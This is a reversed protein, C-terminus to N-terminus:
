GLHFAPWEFHVSSHRLNYGIWQFPSDLTWHPGLSPTFPSSQPVLLVGWPSDEALAFENVASASTSALVIGISDGEPVSKHFTDQIIVAGNSVRWFTTEETSNSSVSSKVYMGKVCSNWIKKQDEQSTVKIANIGKIVSGIGGPSQKSRQYSFFFGSLLPPISLQVGELLFFHPPIPAPTTNHLLCLLYRGLGKKRYAPHVCFYDIIGAKEWYAPGVQVGKIWRRVLTGVVEGTPKFAIWITWQGGSFGKLVHQLPIVCRAKSSISFWRGWFEPLPYLDQPKSAQRVIVGSPPALHPRPTSHTELLKPPHSSWWDQTFQIWSPSCPNDKWFAM